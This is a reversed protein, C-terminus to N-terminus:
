QTEHWGGPGDGALLCYRMSIDRRGFANERHVEIGPVYQLLEDLSYFGNEPPEARRYHFHEQQRWTLPIRTTKVVITDLSTLTQGLFRAFLM